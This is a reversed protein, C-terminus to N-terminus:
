YSKKTILVKSKTNNLLSIYKKENLFIVSNANARTISAVSDVEYNDDGEFELNFEEALQKIKYLM